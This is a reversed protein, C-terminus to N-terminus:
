VLMYKILRGSIFVFAFSRYYASNNEIEKGLAFKSPRGRIIFM